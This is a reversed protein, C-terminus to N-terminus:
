ESDNGEQPSVKRQATISLPPNGDKRQQESRYLDHAVTFMGQKRRNFSGNIRKARPGMITDNRGSIAQHSSGVDSPHKIPSSYSLSTLKSENRSNHHTYM